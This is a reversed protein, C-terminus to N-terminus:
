RNEKKTVRPASPTGGGTGVGAGDRREGPLQEMGPYGRRSAGPAQLPSLARTRSSSPLQWPVSTVMVGPQFLLRSKLRLASQNHLVQEWWHGVVYEPIYVTVVNRPSDSRIRKVYDLVPRTIERYPSEVVKLPVPLNRKHWQEVLKKTDSDDVNVTVAELIDPRTARAYALARLTPKHLTSVLVVAHNRSPLVDDSEDAVLAAAVRDYHLQILRMLVFFGAMAVIAIWAGLTFKTILVTILVVGTMCAGFGNISQARRMRRRESASPDLALERNWHRVMGAQSLTFSVFVGVTYLPILRTVEAQFGVVLLIAFLALAVIGNSFALRDGRTHLQRPLYRDQSLISGLVPFGNFATNAALVLILATMVIVFFYGPPFNDFVADALQAIMTHQEYGPPADPFQRAPDEAIQVHTLQALAILGMFLSVSMAGLLLLTSAANKSKPKRFAPVGNSIAEVGTLAAAGQTFSRLVLLVLALGTFADGEAVLHLDASEARVSDGLILVRTLGWIIMTAVGIVFAYVPIAFATGSERIGRLNIATLVAIASVAFLVKHEAVFPVLAGINAAAASISVAVTLTYDVLLASAVTLGANKGLNVTAVEYDGGGSPYAHVNQRYSAVVTLLVVVVALGIWPSMAYSAVGAVSLTLFIEEPAYAVSSMADSAFVPLAIRKPLLTSTLRDSRQPRGVVLRKLAVALKSM